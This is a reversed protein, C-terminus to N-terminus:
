IKFIFKVKSWVLYKCNLKWRELQDIMKLRTLDACLNNAEHREARYLARFHSCRSANLAM